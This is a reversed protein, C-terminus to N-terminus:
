ELKSKLPRLLGESIFVPYSLAISAAALHQWVSGPQDPFTGMSAVTIIAGLLFALGGIAYTSTILYRIIATSRTSPDASTSSYLLFRFAFLTGLVDKLGFAMVASGLPALVVAFLVPIQVLAMPNGGMMCFVGITGLGVFLFGVLASIARMFRIM